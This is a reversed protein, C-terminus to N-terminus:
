SRLSAVKLEADDGSSRHRGSLADTALEAAFTPPDSVTWEDSSPDSIERVLETFIPAVEDSM